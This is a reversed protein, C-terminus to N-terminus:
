VLREERLKRIRILFIIIKGNVGEDGGGRYVLDERVIRIVEMEEKRNGYIGSWDLSKFLLCFEKFM